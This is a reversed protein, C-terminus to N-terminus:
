CSSPAIGNCWKVPRSRAEPLDYIERAQKYLPELMGLDLEVPHISVSFPM